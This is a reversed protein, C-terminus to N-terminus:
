DRPSNLIKKILLHTGIIRSVITLGVQYGNVCRLGNVEWFKRYYFYWGNKKNIGSLKILTQIM